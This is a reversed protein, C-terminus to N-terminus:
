SSAAMPTWRGARRQNEIENQLAELYPQCLARDAATTRTMVSKSWEDPDVPLGEKMEDVADGRFNGRFSDYHNVRARVFEDRREDPMSNYKEADHMVQAKVLEFIVEQMRGTESPAMKAMVAGFEKKGEASNFRPWFDALFAIQEGRSMRILGRPHGMFAAIEDASAVKVDPVPPATLTDVLWYGGLGAVLVFATVAGVVKLGRQDKQVPTLTASNAESADSM